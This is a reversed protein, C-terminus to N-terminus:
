IKLNIGRLPSEQGEPVSQYVAVRMERCKAKSDCLLSTDSVVHYMEPDVAWMVPM